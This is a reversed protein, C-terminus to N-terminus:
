HLLPFRSLLGLVTVLAVLMAGMMGSLRITLDRRLIELEKGTLERSREIDRVLDARVSEIQLELRQIDSKSALRDDILRAQETALTETQGQTFGGEQLRRSFSLTDFTLGSM